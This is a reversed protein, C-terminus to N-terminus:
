AVSALESGAKIRSPARGTLAYTRVDLLALLLIVTAAIWGRSRHPKPTAPPADAPAATEPVLGEKQPPPAAPPASDDAPQEPREADSM